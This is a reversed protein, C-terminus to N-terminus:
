ASLRKRKKNDSVIEGDRISVIRGCREALEGSHTIFLVTKGQRDILNYRPKGDGENVILDKYPNAM